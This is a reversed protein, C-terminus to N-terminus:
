GKEKLFHVPAVCYPLSLKVYKRFYTVQGNSFDFKHMLAQGDFLHYFPEAGVEFLGPGLRLLSGKIFSPIRGSVICMVCLHKEKLVIIIVWAATELSKAWCTCKGSFM